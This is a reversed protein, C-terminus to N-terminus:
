AGIYIRGTILEIIKPRTPFFNDIDALILPYADKAKIEQGTFLEGNQWLFPKKGPYQCRAIWYRRCVEGNPLQEPMPDGGEGFGGVPPVAGTM